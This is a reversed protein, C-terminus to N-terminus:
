LLYPARIGHFRRKKKEMGFEWMSLRGTSEVGHNAFRSFIQVIIFGNTHSFYSSIM